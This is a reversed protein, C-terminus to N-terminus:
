MDDLLRRAHDVVLKQRKAKPTGDPSFLESISPEDDDDRNSSTTTTIAPNDLLIDLLGKWGPQDLSIVDPKVPNESGLEGALDPRFLAVSWPSWDFNQKSPHFFCKNETQGAKHKATSRLRKPCPERNEWDINIDKGEKVLAMYDKISNFNWLGVTRNTLQCKIYHDKNKFDNRKCDWGFLALVVCSIKIHSDIFEDTAEASLPRKGKSTPSSPSVSNSSRAPSTKQSKPSLSQRRGPSLSKRRTPSLSLRRTPSFAALRMSQRRANAVPSITFRRQATTSKPSPPGSFTAKSSYVDFLEIMCEESLNLDSYIDSHIYPLLDILSKLDTLRKNFDKAAADKEESTIVNPDFLSLFSESCPNSSWPCMPEHGTVINNYSELVKQRYNGANPWPLRCVVTAGCVSCQITDVGICQWGYQAFLPPSLCLPKGTWNILTFSNIRKLFLEHTRIKDVASLSLSSSLSTQDQLSLSIKSRGKSPQPSSLCHPEKNKSANSDDNGDTGNPSTLQNLALRVKSVQPSCLFDSVADSDSDGTM